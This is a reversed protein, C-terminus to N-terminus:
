DYLEDPLNIESPVDKPGLEKYMADLALHTPVTIHNRKQKNSLIAITTRKGVSTVREAYKKAEYVCYLARKIPFIDDYGRHMLAATALYSGSGIAVANEVICTEFNPFTQILVPYGNIMGAVILECNMKLDRIQLFAQTFIDPPLKEKGKDIFDEYSLAFRGRTFNEAYENKRAFIAKKVAVLADDELNLEKVKFLEKKILRTTAYIDNEEGAMLCSLGHPLPRQKLMSDSAGLDSGALWDTCMLIHPEKGDESRCNAAICITMKRGEFRLKQVKEYTDLNM